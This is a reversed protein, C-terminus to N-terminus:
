TIFYIQFRMHASRRQRFSRSGDGTDLAASAEFEIEVHMGQVIWEVMMNVMGNEFKQILSRGQAVIGQGYGQM